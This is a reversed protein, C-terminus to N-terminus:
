RGARAFCRIRVIPEPSVDAAASNDITAAANAAIQLSTVVHYDSLFIVDSIIETDPVIRGDVVATVYAIINLNVVFNINGLEGDDFIINEQARAYGQSIINMRAAGISQLAHSAWIDLATGLYADVDTHERTNDDPFIGDDTSSAYHGFIYRSPHDGVTVRRPNNALYLVDNAGSTEPFFRITM